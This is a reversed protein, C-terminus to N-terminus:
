SKGNSEPITPPISPQHGTGTPQQTRQQEMSNLAEEFSNTSNSRSGTMKSKVAGITGGVREEFSKFATTSKLDGVKKMLGGGLGGFLSSTKETVGSLTEATKQYAPATFSGITEALGGAATTEQLNKVGQTLDGAWEQWASIGLKRKLEQAHKTKSALVQKLTQIEEETKALEARFEEELAARQEDNLGAYPDSPPITATANPDYTAYDAGTTNTYDYNTAAAASYDTAEM